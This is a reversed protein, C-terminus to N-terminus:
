IPRHGAKAPPDEAVPAPPEPSPVGNPLLVVTGRPLGVAREVENCLWRSVAGIAAVRRAVRGFLFAQVESVSPTLSHVVAVTPTRTVLGALMGYQGSYLAPLGVLLLDPRLSRLAVVHSGIARVDLKGRVRPVARAETGPRARVLHELIAGSTGVVSVRYRPDLHALLTALSVEMGGVVEADLYCCLRIAGARPRPRVPDRAM